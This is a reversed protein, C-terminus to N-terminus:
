PLKETNIETYVKYESDEATTNWIQTQKKALFRYTQGPNKKM